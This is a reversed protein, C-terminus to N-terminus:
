YHRCFLVARTDPDYAMLYLGPETLPYQIGDFAAYGETTLEIDAGGSEVSLRIPEHGSQQEVRGNALVAGAYLEDTGLRDWGHERLVDMLGPDVESEAPRVYVCCIDYGSRRMESLLVIPNALGELRAKAPDFASWDFRRIQVVAGQSRSYVMVVLGEQTSTWWFAEEGMSIYLRIDETAPGSTAVVPVGAVQAEWEIGAGPDGYVNYLVETGELVALYPRDQAGKLPILGMQELQDNVTGPMYLSGAGSTGIVTIFDDDLARALMAVPDSTLGEFPDVPAPEAETETEAEPQPAARKLTVQTLVARNVPDVVFLCLGKDVPYRVGDFTAAAQALDAQLSVSRGEGDVAIEASEADAQQIVSGDGLLAGVYIDTDGIEDMGRGRLMEMAEFDVQSADEPRTYLCYLDYGGQRSQGILEAANSMGKVAVPSLYNNSWDFRTMRVLEGRSRSYVMVALGQQNQSWWFASDAISIYLGMDGAASSLATVPLGAVDMDLTLDGGEDGYVNYVVKGGELVALYPRDFAGDLPILGMAQLQDNVVGPMYRSGEGSAGIVTIYDDDTTRELFAVPDSTLEAFPDEEERPADAKLQVQTMVARVAPDYVFLTLGSGAVPYAVGDFTASPEPGGASLAITRGDRDLTLEAAEAGGEHDAGEATVAGAYFNSDGLGEFGCSRLDDLTQGDMERAGEPDAFLCYLDYGGQRSRSILEAADTLGKVPAESLYNNSWDFRSVHVLRELSRSYVMFALGKQSQTWRTSNDAIGIYLHADEPDASSLATVPLGAVDMDVRLDTGEDGYANYVVKGGELVALYPRDFAGDLPILGMEQLKDNVVGPMYRSGESGAGIVTIYDDDKLLDLQSLPDSSFEAFPDPLAYDVGTVGTNFTRMSIIQDVKKDYVVFNFGDTNLALEEGDFLISAQNMVRASYSTLEATHGSTTLSCSVSHEDDLPDEDAQQYVVEGDDLVAVYSLYENEAFPANLGLAEFAASVNENFNLSVSGRTAVMTIYDPEHLKELYAIFNSERRLEIDRVLSDYKECDELWSAYAPDQRKDPLDCVSKIYKGIYSSYKNAGVVNPHVQDAYDRRPDFGILEQMEPLNFDMFEVSNEEAFDAVMDHRFNNWNDSATKVLIFEIGRERCLEIMKRYTDCASQELKFIKDDEIEQEMYNTYWSHSYTVINPNQGKYFYNEQWSRYTFDDKTIEGWRDHYAYLPLLFDLMSAPLDTSTVERLLQFKYKSMPMYDVGEHFKGVIEEDTYGNLMLSTLPTVDAIVAKIDHKELTELLLYYSLVPLQVSTCRSYTTFGYEEFMKLGSIGNRLTSAGLCLVDLTGAPEEYYGQVVQQAAHQSYDWKQRLVDNLILGVVILAVLFVVILLWIKRRGGKARPKKSSEPGNAAKNQQPQANM